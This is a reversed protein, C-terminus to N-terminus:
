SQTSTKKQKGELSNKLRDGNEKGIKPILFM